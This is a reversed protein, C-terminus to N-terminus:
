NVNKRPQKKGTRYIVSCPYSCCTRKIKNKISKYFSKGCAKCIHQSIKRLALKRCEINHYKTKRSPYVYLSKDCGSCIIYKGKRDKHEKFQRRNNAQEKRTAWRINGPEYNKNNDIRDLTCGSFPMPGIHELFLGFSKIWPEFIKIGRGGYDNYNKSTSTLCRYKMSQWAIYEKPYDAAISRKM